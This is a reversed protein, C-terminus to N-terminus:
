QPYKKDLYAANLCMLLGSCGSITMIAVNRMPDPSETICMATLLAAVLLLLGVTMAFALIVKRVVAWFM